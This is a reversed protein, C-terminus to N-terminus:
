NSYENRLVRVIREATKGDWLEPVCGKKWGGKLVTNLAEIIKEKKSGVILNTGKTVTVPRETNERLTICPVGLFTTEEQVGGSDTLVARCNLALNLFDIYKLPETIVINPMNKVSEELGFQKISEKTRPHIPYIIKTKKQAENLIDLMNRLDDTSDVNKPRHMTLLVFDKKKLNLKSMIDSKKIKPLSFVLTDIMINGVFFIKKEDIGENKLNDLGSQETVFLFDSVQDTLLRNIEEPMTRDFSRLGAEIHAVRIGIKTAVLACAITSNVDGVVTVLDPKEKLCIKEFEMMIKATQMAHSASGVGLNYDPEPIDLDRFFYDSMNADYHQGTHVLKAEIEPYKKFERMLSAIKMFNPRAGVDNIIKM